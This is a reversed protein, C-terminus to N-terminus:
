FSIFVDFLSNIYFAEKLLEFNAAPPFCVFFFLRVWDLMANLEEDTRM